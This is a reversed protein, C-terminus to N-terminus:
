RRDYDAGIGCHVSFGCNKIILGCECFDTKRVAEIMRCHKHKM